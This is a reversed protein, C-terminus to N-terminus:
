NFGVSPFPRIRKMYTVTTTENSGYRYQAANSIGQPIGGINPIVTFSYDTDVLLGSITTTQGTVTSNTVNNVNVSFNTASGSWNLQVTGLTVEYLDLKVAVAM